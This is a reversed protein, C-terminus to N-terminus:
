LFRRRFYTRVYALLAILIALGLELTLNEVCGNPKGELAIIGARLAHLVAVVGVWALAEKSLMKRYADFALIMLFIDGIQTILALISTYIPMSLEPCWSSYFTGPGLSKTAIDLFLVLTQAITFGLGASVASDLDCLPFVCKNTSINLFSREGKAFYLFFLWRVFEITAVGLILYIQYYTRLVSLMNYALANIFLAILWFGAAM